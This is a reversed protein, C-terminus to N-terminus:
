YGNAKAGYEAQSRTYGEYELQKILGSRSFSMLDLYNKAAKAAQENWDAGCNDAGYKAETHSYGEYELQKVLGSHSFPMTGLYAKVSSLANQEGKSASSSSGGIKGGWTGTVKTGPKSTPTPDPTAVPLPTTTPEGMPAASVDDTESPVVRISDIISNLTLCDQERMPESFVTQLSIIKDSFGISVITARVTNDYKTVKYSLRRAAHGDIYWPEDREIDYGGTEGVYLDEYSMLEDHNYPPYVPKQKDCQWSIYGGNEGTWCLRGSNDLAFEMGAPALFTISDYAIESVVQSSSAAAASESPASLHDVEEPSAASAQPLPQIAETVSESQISAATKLDNTSKVTAWILIVLLISVALAAIWVVRIVRPRAANTAAKENQQAAIPYGCNPCSVAKDSVERGCEACNILAM